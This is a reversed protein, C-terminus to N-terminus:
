WTFDHDFSLILKLRKLYNLMEILNKAYIIAGIKSFVNKHM